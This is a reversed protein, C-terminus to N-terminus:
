RRWAHRRRRFGRQLIADLCVEEVLPDFRDWGYFHGEWPEGYYAPPVELPESSTSSPPAPEQAPEQQGRRWREWWERARRAAREIVEPPIERTVEWPKPLRRPVPGPLPVPLDPVSSGDGRAADRCGGGAAGGLEGLEM